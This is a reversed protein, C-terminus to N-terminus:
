RQPQQQDLEIRLDGEARRLSLRDDPRELLDGANVAGAGPENGNIYGHDLKALARVDARAGARPAALAGHGRVILLETERSDCRSSDCYMQVRGLDQGLDGFSRIWTMQGCWPCRWPNDHDASRIAPTTKEYDYGTM